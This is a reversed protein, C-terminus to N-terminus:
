HYEPSAVDIVNCIVLPTEPHSPNIQISFIGDVLFAMTPATRQNQIYYNEIDQTVTLTYTVANNSTHGQQFCYDPQLPFGIIFNSLDNSEFGVGAKGNYNTTLARLVDKNLGMTDCNLNLANQLEEILRPENYTGYARPPMSGYGSANVQLSNFFPNRFCVKDNSTIPFLFYLMNFFKPSISHTSTSHESSLNNSLRQLIMQHIPHVLPQKTYRQQLENYKFDILGFNYINTTCQMVKYEGATIIVTGSTLKGNTTQTAPTYGTIVTIEERLQTFENTVMPVTYNANSGLCNTPDEATCVLGDVSFGVRLEIKGGFKPLFALGSLPLFRRLDIKFKIRIPKNLNDGDINVYRGCFCEHKHEWVDKHRTKSFPDSRKADEPTSCSTIYAEEIAFSQLYIQGGNSLIEYKYMSCKADKFGVWVTHPNRIDTGTFKPIAKSCSLMVEMEGYIYGNYIDAMNDITPSIVLTTETNNILPVSSSYCDNVVCQYRRNTDVIQIASEVDYFYKSVQTLVQAPVKHPVEPNQM